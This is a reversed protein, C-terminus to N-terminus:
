WKLCGIDINSRRKAKWGSIFNKNVSTWVNHASSIRSGCLENNWFFNFMITKLKCIYNRIKQNYFENQPPYINTNSLIFTRIQKTILFIIFENFAQYYYILVKFRWIHCNLKFSILKLNSQCNCPSNVHGLFMYRM